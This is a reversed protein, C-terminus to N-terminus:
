NDKIKELIFKELKINQLAQLLNETGLINTLQTSQRQKECVPISHIAALHVVIKPKINKVLEILKTKDTIDIKHNTIKNDCDFSQGFVLNDLVHIQYNKQMLIQVLEKGIFGAGGTILIKGM